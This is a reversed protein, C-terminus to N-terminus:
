GIMVASSARWRSCASWPSSRTNHMWFHVKVLRLSYIPRNVLRPIFYYIPGFIAM